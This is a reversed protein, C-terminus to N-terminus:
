DKGYKPSRPGYLLSNPKGASLLRASAVGAVQHSQDLTTAMVQKVIAAVALSLLGGKQQSQGEESNATAKGSWLLAGTRLDILKAEITVTSVSNVVQYVAGYQSVNMYLAADAGFIQRLKEVSTAHMDTPQLMGNEKFTEAVLAVPMVYYGSEALPMVSQSLVSYTAQVEPTNNIPPLVLISSPRSEKFAIYDTPTITACGVMVLTLLASTSIKLSNKLSM